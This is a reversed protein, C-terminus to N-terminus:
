GCREHSHDKQASELHGDVIDKQARKIARLAKGPALLQNRSVTQSRSSDRDILQTPDVQDFSSGVSRILLLAGTPLLARKTRFGHLHDRIESCRPTKIPRM